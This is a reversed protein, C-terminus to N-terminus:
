RPDIGFFTAQPTAGIWLWCRKSKLRWSTEDANVVGEALVAKRIIGYSKELINSALRHINCLAGLSIKVGLHGAISCIKRKPVGAEGTLMTLFGMLRPGFGREAEKPINPRCSKGCNGCRCTHINYQTVEPQIVPLEVTQRCEISIPTENFSTHGCSPCEEPKLDVVEFVQEVPLMAKKHGRHGPQGGPKKGSPKRKKTKRFPDQSPSKSSNKSNTALKERLAQIELKLSQNELKLSRNEDELNAIRTELVVLAEAFETQLKLCQQKWLNLSADGM